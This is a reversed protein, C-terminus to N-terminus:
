PQVFQVPPMKPRTSKCNATVVSSQRSQRKSRPIPLSAGFSNRSGRRDRLSPSLSLQHMFPSVDAISSRTAPVEISNSHEGPISLSSGYSAAYNHGNSGNSQIRGLDKSKIRQVPVDFDSDDFAPM